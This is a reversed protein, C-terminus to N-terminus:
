INPLLIFNDGRRELKAVDKIIDYFKNMVDVAIDKHQNERGQFKFVINVKRGDELFEKAKRAKIELDHFGISPRLQIEKDDHKAAKSANKKSKAQEYLYKGYNMIKCVPPNGPSVEVLDLECNRARNLADKTSVIGVNNGTEDILRVQSAKIANNIPNTDKKKVPRDNFYKNIAM